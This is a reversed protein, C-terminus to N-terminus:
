RYDSQFYNAFRMLPEDSMELLVADQSARHGVWNSSPVLFTDGRNWSVTNGAVISSGTGSMATFIRNSTTRREAWSKGAELREVVLGVAMM